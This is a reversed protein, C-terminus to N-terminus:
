AELSTLVEPEFREYQRFENYISALAALAKMRSAEDTWVVVTVWHGRISSQYVEARVCGPQKLIMPEIENRWRGIFEELRESPVFWRRLVLIM